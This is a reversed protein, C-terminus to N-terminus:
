AVSSQRKKEEEFNRAQSVWKDRDIRGPFFKITETIEDIARPTFESIQRFSYIGLANLKKEISPGIGHILKLDDKPPLTFSKSMRSNLVENEGKVKELDNKLLLANDQVLQVEKELQEARKKLQSKESKLEEIYPQLSLLEEKIRDRERIVTKADESSTEQTASLQSQLQQNELKMQEVEGAVINREHNLHFIEDRHNSIAAERLQWAIAFGILCAILLMVLLEVIWLARSVTPAQLFGISKIQYIYIEAGIICAVLFLLILLYVTRM